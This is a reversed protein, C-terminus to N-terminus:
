IFVYAYKYATKWKHKLTGPLLRAAVCAFHRRERRMYNVGIFSKPPRPSIGSLLLICM